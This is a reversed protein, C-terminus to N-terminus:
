IERVKKIDQAIAAKLKELSNFKEEPRLKQQPIIHIHQGYLDGNFDLLHSEVVYEPESSSVSPRWGMNIASKHESGDALRTTGAYVGPPPLCEDCTQLNATPFGMRRGLHLGEVVEGYLSFPRGLMESAERLAGNQIKERIKSSSIGHKKYHVRKKIHLKLGNTKAWQKLLASNGKRGHGFRFNFGVSFRQVHPLHKRLEKLFEETPQHSRQLDFKLVIVAGLGWEELIKLKHPQGTVLPPTCSPNIISVPHPHFTLLGCQQPNQISEKPFIVSQHGRHLGDFFGLAFQRIFHAGSAEELTHFVMM